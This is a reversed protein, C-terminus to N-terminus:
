EEAAPKKPGIAIVPSFRERVSSLSISEVYYFYGKAPDITTDVYVYSQPEDITGAGAILDVTIREFPGDESTSRYVDFGFNNVESATTWRLTNSYDEVPEPEAPSEAKAEPAQNTEDVTSVCGNFFFTVVVLAMGLGCKKVMFLWCQTRLM